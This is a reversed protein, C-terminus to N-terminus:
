RWNDVLMLREPDCPPTEDSPERIRGAESASPVELMATVLDADDAVLERMMSMPTARPAKMEGVVSGSQFSLEAGFKRALQQVRPNEALCLL